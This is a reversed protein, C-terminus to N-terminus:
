WRQGGRAACAPVRTEVLLRLFADTARSGTSTTSAWSSTSQRSCALNYPKQKGPPTATVEDHGVGPHSAVYQDLAACPPGLPVWGATSMEAKHNESGGGIAVLRSRSGTEVSDPAITDTDPM